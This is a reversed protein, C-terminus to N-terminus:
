PWTISLSYDDGDYVCGDSWERGDISNSLHLTSGPTLIHYTGKFRFTIASRELREIRLSYFGEESFPGLAALREKRTTEKPYTGGTSWAQHVHVLQLVVTETLPDAEQFLGDVWHGDQVYGGKECSFVGRGHFLGERFSGEYRSGRNYRDDGTLVGHGDPRGDRIEGDYIWEGQNYRIRSSWVHAKMSEGTGFPSPLELSSAGALDWNEEEQRELTGNEWCERRYKGTRLHRYIVGKWPRLGRLHYGNYNLWEGGPYTIAGELKTEFVMKGYNNPDLDGSKQFVRTGDALVITLECRDEDLEQLDWSAVELEGCRQGESWEVAYPKDSLVLELGSRKHYCFPTLTDPGDPHHVRFLGHLEMRSLDPTTNIWAKDMVSGDAFTFVGEAAYAPGNISAYSLHFYGQFRDGNPYLLEGEGVPGKLKQLITDEWQFDGQYIIGNEQNRM